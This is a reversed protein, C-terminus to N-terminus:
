PAPRALTAAGLTIVLWGLALALLNLSLWGLGTWEASLRQLAGREFFLLDVANAAPQACIYLGLLVGVSGDLLRVGTLTRLAFLLGCYVVALGIVGWLRRTSATVRERGM